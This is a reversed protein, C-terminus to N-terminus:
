MLNYNNVTDLSCYEELVLDTVIDKNCDSVLWRWVDETNVWCGMMEVVNM